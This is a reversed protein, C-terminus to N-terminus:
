QRPRKGAGECMRWGTNHYMIRPFMDQILDGVTVLSSGYIRHAGITGDVRLRASYQCVSCKGYPRKVRSQALGSSPM